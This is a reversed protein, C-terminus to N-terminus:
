ILELEGHYDLQAVYILGAPTLIAFKFDTIIEDQVDKKLQELLDNETHGPDKSHTIKRFEVSDEFFLAVYDCLEIINNSSNVVM